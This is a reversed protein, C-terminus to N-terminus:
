KKRKKVEKDVKEKVKIDPYVVKGDHTIQPFKSRVINDWEEQESLDRRVILMPDELSVDWTTGFNRWGDFIDQSEFAKVFKKTSEAACKGESETRLRYLQYRVAKREARMKMGESSFAKVTRTIEEESMDALEIDEIKDDLKKIKKLSKKM